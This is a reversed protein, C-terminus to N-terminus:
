GSSAETTTTTTTTTILESILQPYAALLARLQILASEQTNRPGCASALDLQCLILGFILIAM